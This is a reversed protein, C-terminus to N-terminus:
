KPPELEPNVPQIQAPRLIQGPPLEELIEVPTDPDDVPDAETRSEIGELPQEVQHFDPLDSQPGLNEVQEEWFKGDVPGPDIWIGRDDLQITGMDVDLGRRLVEYNVGVSLFDNQASLLSDLANLLDRATSSNFQQSTQNPKAPEQLRLQTREVQSIAVQVAARRLEFNIRNLDMTRLTSRLGQSIRDRYQYYARRTRQYTILSERYNNREVLRTLPADWELGARLRGNDSNFKVPNDGGLNGIEGSFVVDLDSLLDNAVIQINRWADVYAAQANMWDLRHVRAVKLATDSDIDVPVLSVTETRARAQVLSLGLVDGILTQVEDPVPDFVVAKAQAYLDKPALNPGQELLAAVEQDIQDLIEGHKGFRDKLDGLIARLQPPLDELRQTSLVGKSVTEQPVDESYGALKEQIKKLDEVRTPLVDELQAVDEEVLPYLDEDILQLIAKLQSTLMRLNQLRQRVNDDWVLEPKFEETNDINDPDPLVELLSTGVTLQIDNLKNTIPTFVPDILNFQEFFTDRELQVNIEPPLGMDIKFQDLSTQLTTKNSLLSSQTQFLSQRTLEVQFSDIRGAEFFAELQALSSRLSAINSEQNRITQQRQLLGYYGSASFAGSPGVSPIGGVSGPGASLGRGAIIDLYFSQNFREMTRVSALLDREQQTLNELVVKRGGNRLLPQVLSFDILSNVSHTNPGSFEWMINNALGVVLQGGTAFMKEMQINRTNAELLSSSGGRAPGTATYFTEYGGFFQADFQFRQFSVDLASIYLDELARQYDPSNLRAIEVAKNGDLVLTGEEDLPLYALWNPNAVDNTVGNREWGWYARKGDVVEMYEHAAPDDVPMPPCDPSFPDFMRSRPDPAISTRDLHWRPDGNKQSVLFYADDDAQTRYFAQSRCGALLFGAILSGLLMTWSVSHSTFSAKRLHATNNRM